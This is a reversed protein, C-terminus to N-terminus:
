IRSLKKRTAGVEAIEALSDSTEGASNFTKVKITPNFTLNKEKKTADQIAPNKLISRYQSKIEHNADCINSYNVNASLDNVRSVPGILTSSTNFEASFGSYVSKPGFLNGVRYVARSSKLPLKHTNVNEISIPM